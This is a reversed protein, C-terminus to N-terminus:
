CFLCFKIKEKYINIRYLIFLFYKAQKIKRIIIEMEIALIKEFQLYFIVLTVTSYLQMGLVSLVAQLLDVKLKWSKFIKIFFLHSNYIFTKLLLFIFLMLVFSNCQFYEKLWIFLSKEYLFLFANLFKINAQQHSM